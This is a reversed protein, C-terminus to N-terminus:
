VPDLANSALPSMRMCRSFRRDFMGALSLLRSRPIPDGNGSIDTGAPRKPIGRNMPRDRNGDAATMCRGDDWCREATLM